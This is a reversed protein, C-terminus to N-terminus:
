GTLFGSQNLTTIFLTERQNQFIALTETLAALVTLADTTDHGDREMSAVLEQQRKVRSMGEAIHVDLAQLAQSNRGLKDEEKILLTHLQSRVSPDAETELRDRFHRINELAVFKDM